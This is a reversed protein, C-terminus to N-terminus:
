VQVSRPERMLVCPSAPGIPSPSAQGAAPLNHPQFSGCGAWLLPLVPQTLCILPAPFLLPFIHPGPEDIGLRSDGRGTLPPWDHVTRPEMGLGM